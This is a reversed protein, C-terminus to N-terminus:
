GNGGGSTIWGRKALPNPSTVPTNRLIADNSSPKTPLAGGGTTIVTGDNTRIVIRDKSRDQGRTQATNNMDTYPSYRASRSNKSSASYRSELDM